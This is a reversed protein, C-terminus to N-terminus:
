IPFSFVDFPRAEHKAFFHLARTLGSRFLVLISVYINRADKTWVRRKRKASRDAGAPSNGGGDVAAALSGVALNAPAAAKANGVARARTEIM